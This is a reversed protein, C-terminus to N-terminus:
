RWDDQQVACLIAATGVNACFFYYRVLEKNANLDLVTWALVFMVVFAVAKDIRKFIHTNLLQVPGVAGFFQLLSLGLQTSGAILALSIFALADFYTDNCTALRRLYKAETHACTHAGVDPATLLAVLNIEVGCADYYCLLGTGVLAVLLGGVAAAAQAKAM